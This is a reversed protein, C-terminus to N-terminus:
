RELPALTLGFGELQAHYLEAAERHGSWVIAQGTTHIRNALAMGRDYDIGPITQALAFAVGEFTNHDDNRVIVRWAGGTGSGGGRRLREKPPTLTSTM